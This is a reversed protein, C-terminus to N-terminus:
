NKCYLQIHYSTSLVNLKKRVEKEREKQERSVLEFQSVKTLSSNNQGKCGKCKGTVCKLQYYGNESKPCEYSSMFYETISDPCVDGDKKAQAKILEFLSRANLCMICPCLSIEKETPYTIFFPRLSLVKGLSIALGKELLGKQITRM